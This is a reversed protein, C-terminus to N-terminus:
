KKEASTAKNQEPRQRVKGLRQRQEPSLLSPLSAKNKNNKFFAQRLRRELSSEQEGQVRIQERKALISAIESYGREEFLASNASYLSFFDDM